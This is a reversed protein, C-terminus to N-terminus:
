RWDVTVAPARRLASPRLRLAADGDPDLVLDYGDPLLDLLDAGTTSFWSGAGISRALEVESTWVPVVADPPVGFAM